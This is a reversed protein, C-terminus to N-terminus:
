KVSYFDDILERDFSYIIEADFYNNNNKTDALTRASYEANAANFEEASIGFYEIFQLMAMGGEASVTKIWESYEVPDALSSFEYPVIAYIDAFSETEFLPADVSATSAAQNVSIDGAEDAFEDASYYFGYDASINGMLMEASDNPASARFLFAPSVFIVLVIVAAAAIGVVPKYNFKRKKGSCSSIIDEKESDSLSIEEVAAKIKDFDM